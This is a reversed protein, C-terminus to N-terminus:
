LFKRLRIYTLPLSIVVYQYVKQIVSTGYIYTPYCDKSEGIFKRATLIDVKNKIIMSIGSIFMDTCIREYYNKIDHDQITSSFKRLSKSVILKDFLKKQNFGSNMFSEPHQVYNYVSFQNLTYIREAYYFARSMCEVDEYRTNPIFSLHNSEWFSKKIIYAWPGIFPDKSLLWEKGSYQRSVYKETTFDKPFQSTYSISPGTGFLDCELQCCCKLLTSLCNPCITDDADIFWIHSGKAQQAGVNRASSIGKNEQNIIKILQPYKKQYSSSIDFTKDTSGDNVIIIEYVNYPVDQQLLSDLCSSIHKEANYAPIIFSLTM